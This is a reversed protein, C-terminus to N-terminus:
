AIFLFINSLLIIRIYLKALYLFLNFAQSVSLPITFWFIFLVDTIDTDFFFRGHLQAHVLTGERAWNVPM